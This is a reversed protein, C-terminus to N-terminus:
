EFYNVHLHNTTFEGEGGDKLYLLQILADYMRLGNKMRSNNNCSNCSGSGTEWCNIITKMGNNNNNNNSNDDRDCCSCCPM